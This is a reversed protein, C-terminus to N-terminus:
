GLRNAIETATPNYYIMLSRTDKHGIMKALDLVDLKRALRTCAEHRSDHFTLNEIGLQRTAKRFTQSVSDSSISFLEGSSKPELLKFLEIARLSLPVDRNDSNKTDYLSLYKENLFIQRWDLYTIESQRMGTEIAILFIFGVVQKQMTPKEEKFQFWNLLQELELQSIRRNRPPPEPLSKLDTLPNVNTWGWERRATEVVSRVLALERNKSSNSIPRQNRWEAIMRAKLKMLPVKNPFYDQNLFARIRHGENRAGKKSPTVEKLYRTMADGLTKSNDYDKEAGEKIEKERKDIWIRAELESEFSQAENHSIYNKTLRIRAFYKKGRKTISGM